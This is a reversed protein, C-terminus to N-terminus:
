PTHKDFLGTKCGLMGFDKLLDLYYKRQCLSIGKDFHAVEIGLFYKLKGLDKIHFNTHLIRKIREIEALSKGTLVIDDVYVIIATFESNHAKIFQMNQITM